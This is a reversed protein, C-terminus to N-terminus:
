HEFGDVNLQAVKNTLHVLFQASLMWFVNAHAISADLSHISRFTGFFEAVVCKTFEPHM